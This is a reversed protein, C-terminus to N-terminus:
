RMPQLNSGQGRLLIPNKEYSDELVRQKDEDKLPELRKHIRKVEPSAKKLPLLANTTDISIIKDKLLLNSGLKLLIKKKEQLSEEDRFQTSTDRAFDLMEEAKALWEDARADTDNVLAHLRKKERVEKFKKNRYEEESIEDSARMDILADLKRVSANYARQHNGMLDNREGTEKKHEQKLWGVAWAHFEAPIEISEIEEAIQRELEKVEICPQSCPGRKKTCHYYTYYHINGNKQHKEKDEATIGCGCEGCFMMGTYAFRHRRPRAIGKRGLVSLIQQHEEETIMAPHKGEHWNGSGKPYEFIGCYFPDTLIRYLTSRAMPKGNKMRFSWEDKAIRAAEVANCEKRMVMEFLKRLQDFRKKDKKIIKMGKSRDPTNLYGVPAPCPYWGMEVKRRLGRKVDVGKTDNELKAQSCLLNLLFKDNPSNSFTQGPVKVEKLKGIDLLYIVHGTDVSNRSLRNPSWLMIGDAEGKEIRKIMEGFVPRGPAKASYSEELVERIDLKERKALAILESKQSDISLVQRDEQESSKRVYLFYRTSENTM